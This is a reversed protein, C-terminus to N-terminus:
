TFFLVINFECNLGYKCNCNELIELFCVLHLQKNLVYHRKELHLPPVKGEIVITYLRMFCERIIYKVIDKDPARTTPQSM